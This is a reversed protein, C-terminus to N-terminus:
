KPISSDTRDEDLQALKLSIPWLRKAEEYDLAPPAPEEQTTLNFFKGGMNDLEDSVGLYYIAEASINTPKLTKDLMNRKFWKYIVGNEQGTDSKVAGPHMAVISVGSNKFQENFLLMTQLQALKASGYSKLGSYRRKDWNLDSVQLGWAAFRHGESNILIIRAQKQQKLKQRLKYNIIFSSLYHVVLVKELGDGTVEKKTLYVGANHILVDIPSNLQALEDAVRHIDALISLDAIKYSCSVMHQEEIEQKLQESKQLNRNICLLHAGQSAFKHATIRGIGSTAGTIVVLKDKFHANCIHPDRQNNKLMAWVNSFEYQKFYKKFNKNKM